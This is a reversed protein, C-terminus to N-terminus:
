QWQKWASLVANPYEPRGLSGNYRGLARFHNGKERNLYLRYINCGYRLNVTSDFLKRTDGDGAVRTWFPMVQMLGRADAHSIAYTRFNSEVQVLGLVLSPEIGARNAEYYITELIDRRAFASLDKRRKALRQENTNLWQHYHQADISDLPQYRPVAKDAIAAALSQRVADAVPEEAQKGAQAINSVLMLLFFGKIVTIKYFKPAQLKTLSRILATDVITM